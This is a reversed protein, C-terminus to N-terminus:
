SASSSILSRRFLLCVITQPVVRTVLQDPLGLTGTVDKSSPASLRPLGCPLVSLPYSRHSPLQTFKTHSTSCHVDPVGPRLCFQLPSYSSFAPLHSRHHRFQPDSHHALLYGPQPPPPSTGPPVPPSPLTACPGLRNTAPTPPLSLAVPGHAWGLHKFSARSRCWTDRM